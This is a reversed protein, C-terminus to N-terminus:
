FTILKVVFNDNSIKLKKASNKFWKIYEQLEMGGCIFMLIRLICHRGCTNIGDNESQFDYKNVVVKHKSNKLLKTLVPEDEGLKERMAKSIYKLENDITGAYPDFIEVTNKYRLLCCWHGSSPKSEILIIVFSNGNFVSDINDFKSLDSYKIIHGDGFYKEIDFNSVSYNISNKNM